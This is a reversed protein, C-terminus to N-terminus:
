QERRYFINRAEKRPVSVEFITANVQAGGNSVPVLTSAGSRSRSSRAFEVNFPTLVSSKKSVTAGEIERGPSTILSGYALIGVNKAGPMQYDELTKSKRVVKSLPRHLTNFTLSSPLTVLEAPSREPSGAEVRKSSHCVRRRFIKEPRNHGDTPVLQLMSM